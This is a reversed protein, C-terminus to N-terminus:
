KSLATLIVALMMMSTRLTSIAKGLQNRVTKPSLGLRLAIEDPSLDENFRMRFINQQGEPLAGVLAEYARMFEVTLLHGDAQDHRSELDTLLDAIPILKAQKEMSRFVSNRAATYLYAGVNEIAVEERKIWLQLFIDQTIDEAKDHDKLRKYINNYTQAWYNNYLQRYALDDGGKLLATLEQDSYTSYANM